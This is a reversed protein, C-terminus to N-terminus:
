SYSMELFKNLLTNVSNIESNPIISIQKDTNVHKIYYAHIM